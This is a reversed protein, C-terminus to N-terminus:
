SAFKLAGGNERVAAIVIERKRRIDESTFMIGEGNKKVTTMVMDRDGRIDESLFKLTGENQRVADMVTERNRKLNMLADKLRWGNWSWTTRLIDLINDREEKDINDKVGINCIKVQYSINNREEEM